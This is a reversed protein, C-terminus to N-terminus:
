AHLFSNRFPCITYCYYSYYYYYRGYRFTHLCDSCRVASTDDLHVSWLVGVDQTVSHFSVQVLMRYFM